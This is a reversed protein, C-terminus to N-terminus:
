TMTVSGDSKEVNKVEAKNQEMCNECIQGKMEIEDEKGGNKEKSKLKAENQEM